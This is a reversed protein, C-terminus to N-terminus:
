NDIFYKLYLEELPEKFDFSGNEDFLFAGVVEINFSADSVLTIVIKYDFFGVYYGNKDLLHYICDIIITQAKSEEYNIHKESNIAPGTPMKSIIQSISLEYNRVWAADGRQLYEQRADLLNKLEQLKKM